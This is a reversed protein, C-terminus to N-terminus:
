KGRYHRLQWVWEIGRALAKRVSPPATLAAHLVELEDPMEVKADTPDVSLISELYFWRMAGRKECYAWVGPKSKHDIISIPVVMRVTEESKKDIYRMLLPKGFRRSIAEALHFQKDHNRM